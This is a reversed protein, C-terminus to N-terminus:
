RPPKGARTVQPFGRMHYWCSSIVCQGKFQSICNDNAICLKYCWHYFWLWIFHAIHLFVQVGSLWDPIRPVLIILDRRNVNGSTSLHTAIVIISLKQQEKNLEAVQDAVATNHLVTSCRNNWFVVAVHFSRWWHDHRRSNGSLRANTWCNGWVSLLSVGFTRVVTGKHPSDMPGTVLPNRACLPLVRFTNKKSSTM